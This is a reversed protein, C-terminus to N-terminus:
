VNKVNIEKRISQFHILLVREIQWYPNLKTDNTSFRESWNRVEILYM